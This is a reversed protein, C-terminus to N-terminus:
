KKDQLLLGALGILPLTVLGIYLCEMTQGSAIQQVMLRGVGFVGVLIILGFAFGGRHILRSLRQFFSLRVRRVPQPALTTRLQNRLHQNVTTSM